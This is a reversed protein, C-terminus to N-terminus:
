LGPPVDPPEDEGVLVAVQEFRKWLDQVAESAPDFLDHEQAPDQATDYVEASGDWGAILALDGARFSVLRQRHGFVRAAVLRPRDPPATGVVYGTMADIWPPGTLGLADVVTPLVDSADTPGQWATPPLNRAWFATMVGLEEAHLSWGHTWRGRENFQEGHDAWLVVLTGELAGAAELATWLRQLEADAASVSARYRALTHALLAGQTEPSLQPWLHHLERMWTHDFTWGPDAPPLDALLPALRDAPPHLPSHPEMYHVQLLWPEGAAVYKTALELAGDTVASETNAYRRDDFSVFFGPLLTSLMQSSTAIGTRLGLLGLRGPGWVFDKPLEDFEDDVGPYGIGLDVLDRGSWFGIFGSATSNGTSQCDELVVSEALRGDLFPTDGAPGGHRGIADRRLTDVSVVLLNVPAQGGFSLLPAGTAPPYLAARAAPVPDVPPPPPPPPPEDAEPSACAAGTLALILLAPGYRM